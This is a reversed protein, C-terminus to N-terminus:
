YHLEVTRFLSNLVHGVVSDYESATLGTSSLAHAGRNRCGYTIAVSVSLGHLSTGLAPVVTGSLLYQLTRAFDTNFEGNLTRLMDKTLPLGASTALFACQDIFQRHSPNKVRLAEDVVLCLDFLTDLAIQSPFSGSWLEPYLSVFRASKALSYSFMNVTQRMSALSLFRHRFDPMTLACHPYSRYSTLRAQLIAVQALVYPHLINATVTEDLTALAYGPTGPSQSGHTRVDEEFARNLLLYGMDLDDILLATMGWYYYPSGKHVLKGTSAELALAPRLAWPWIWSAAGTQRAQLRLTWFATFNDFYADQQDSTSTALM